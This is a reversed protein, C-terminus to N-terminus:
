LAIEIGQRDRQQVVAIAEATTTGAVYCRILRRALTSRSAQDEWPQNAAASLLYANGM